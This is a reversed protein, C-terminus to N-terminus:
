ILKQSKQDVSLIDLDKINDLTKHIALAQIKDIIFISIDLVSLSM